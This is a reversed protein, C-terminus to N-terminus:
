KEWIANGFTSNSSDISKIITGFYDDHSVPTDNRILEDHQEGAQKIFFITHLDDNFDVGLQSLPERQRKGPGHDATIMITSTDYIGLEKMQAIYEYVISMCAKWQQLPDQNYYDYTMDEKLYYPMHAGYLHYINMAPTDGHILNLGNDVLNNYFEADTGFLYIDTDKICNTIDSDAYSYISKIAFPTARYRTCNIMQRVTKGHELKIFWEDTFNDIIGDNLYQIYSKDTFAQIKYGYDKITQMFSSQAYDESSYERDEVLNATMLFPLSGDTYDFHSKMKNYYTFDHLNSYFDPLREEVYDVMQADYSDLIFVIINSNSVQYVNQQSLMREEDPNLNGTFLISVFSLGQLAIITLSIYIGISTSKDSKIFLFAVAVIIICWVLLNIMTQVTSWTQSSGQMNEMHGNLLMTQIYSSLTYTLIIIGLIKCTIEPFLYKISCYGIGLMLIVFLLMHPLISMYRFQFESSNYSFIEAPGNLSFVFMWSIIASLDFLIIRKEPQNNHKHPILLLIVGILLSIIGQITTIFLTPINYCFITILQLFTFVEVTKEFLLVLRGKFTKPAIIIAIFAIFFLVLVKIYGVLGKDSFAQGLLESSHGQLMRFSSVIYYYLMIFLLSSKVYQKDKLSFIIGSIVGSLIICLAIQWYGAM